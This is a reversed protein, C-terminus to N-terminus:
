MLSYHVIAQAGTGAVVLTVGNLCEVPTPLMQQIGSGGSVGSSYAVVTGSGTTANDYVTGTASASAPALVVSHVKAPRTCVVYTGVSLLGSSKSTEMSM